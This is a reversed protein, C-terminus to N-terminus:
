AGPDPQGQLEASPVGKVPASKRPRRRDHHDRLQRELKDVLRDLASEVDDASAHARFVKRPTALSAEIRRALTRHANPEAIVQVDIRVARPEIRQLHALKHEASGRIRDTVRTGRGTVVVDM